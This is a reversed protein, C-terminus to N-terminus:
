RIGCAGAVTVATPAPRDRVATSSQASRRIPSRSSDARRRRSPALERRPRWPPRRLAEAGARCSHRRGLAVLGLAAAKVPFSAHATRSASSASSVPGAGAPLPPVARGRDHRGVLCFRSTDPARSAPRPAGPRAPRPLPPPGASCPGRAGDARLTDPRSARALRRIRTASTPGPPRDAAAQPRALGAATATVHRGSRGPARAPTPTATWGHGGHPPRPSPGLSGARARAPAAPAATVAALGGCPLPYRPPEAPARDPM